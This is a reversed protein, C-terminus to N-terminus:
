LRVTWEPAIKVKLEGRPQIAVEGPRAFEDARVGVTARINPDLNAAVSTWQAFDPIWFRGNFSESTDRPDYGMFTEGERMEPPLAARLHTRGIQAESGLRWEVNSLGLAKGYTRIIDFRPTVTPQQVDIYRDRICM